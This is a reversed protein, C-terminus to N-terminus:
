WAKAKFTKGDVGIKGFYEGQCLSQANKLKDCVFESAIIKSDDVSQKFVFVNSCQNRVLPDIQRARQALFHAKHGWKRSNTALWAMAGSYRGIMSGSEDVFLACKKNLKVTELFFEPDDTIFDAGWEKRKDPDLVLVPINKSKYVRAM